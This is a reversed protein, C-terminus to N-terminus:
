SPRLKNSTEHALREAEEQHAKWATVGGSLAIVKSYGQQRLYEAASQSRAGGYNCVTVVQADNSVEPLNNKTRLQDLPLNIAGEIHYAAFEEASRVDIVVPSGAASIKIKSLEDPKLLPTAEAIENM